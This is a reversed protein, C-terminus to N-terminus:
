DGPLRLWIEGFAEPQEAEIEGGKVLELLALFLGLLRGRLAPPTFLERFSLRRRERLLAIIRQMHVHVPTEDLVIPRPQLAATERM